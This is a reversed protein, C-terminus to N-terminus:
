VRADLGLLRQCPSCSALGMWWFQDPVAQSASASQRSDRRTEFICASVTLMPWGVGLVMTHAHAKAPLSARMAINWGESTPRTSTRFSGWRGQWTSGSRAGAGAGRVGGCRCGCGCGCGAAAGTGRVGGAAAAISHQQSVDRTPRWTEPQFMDLPFKGGAPEAAARQHPSADCRRCQVPPRRIVHVLESM